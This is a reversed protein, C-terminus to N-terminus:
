WIPNVHVQSAHQTRVNTVPAPSYPHASLAVDAKGQVVDKMAEDVTGGIESYSGTRIGTRSPPRRGSESTRTAFSDSRAAEASLARDHLPRDGATATHRDRADAHRRAGRRRLHTALKDLFDPDPAVLHFTVTGRQEDIVMGALPRLAQGDRMCCRASSAPRLVDNGAASRSSRARRGCRFDSAKVRQRDLLPHRPAAPLHLDQRRRDSRSRFPSTPCSGSGKSGASKSSRSSATTRDDAPDDVSPTTRSRTDISDSPGRRRDDTRVRLTGGRHEAAPSAFAVLLQRASSRSGRPRNGVSDARASRNTRPDIRAVHRRVPQDGM